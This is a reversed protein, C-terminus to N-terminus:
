QGKARAIAATAQNLITQDLEDTVGDSDPALHIFRAKMRELAALLDPAVAILRTNALVHPLPAGYKGRLHKQTRWPTLIELHGSSAARAGLYGNSDCTWPGPTHSAPSQRANFEEKAIAMRANCAAASLPHKTKTTM